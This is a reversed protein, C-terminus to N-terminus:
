EVSIDSGEFYVFFFFFSFESLCLRRVWVTWTFDFAYICIYMFGM